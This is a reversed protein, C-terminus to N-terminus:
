TSKERFVRQLANKEGIIAGGGDLAGQFHGDLEAHLGASGSAVFEDGEGITVVAIGEARGRQTADSSEEFAKFVVAVRDGM